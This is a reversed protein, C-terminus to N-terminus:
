TSWNKFFNLAEQEAGFAQEIVTHKWSDQDPFFINKMDQQIRIATPSNIDGYAHLWHDKQLANFVKREPYTGFEHASFLLPIDNLEEKYANELIGHIEYATSKSSFVSVYKSGWCKQGWGSTSDALKTFGILEGNGKEGLGTHYDIVIVKEARDLYTNIITRLTKNSWTPQLGGYFPGHPQTYQGSPIRAKINKRGYKLIALAMSVKSKLNNKKPVIFDILDDYLENIPVDNDFNIFNRFLDVGDENTRRLWSFGWPNIAHILLVATNPQLDSYLGTEMAGVQVASGLFAEVGHTGSSTVLVNKADKPGIWLADTYLPEGSLGLIPNRYNNAIFENKLAVSLFKDRAEEYNKSFYCNENM